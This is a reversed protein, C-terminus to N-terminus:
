PPTDHCGSHELIMARFRDLFHQLKETLETVLALHQGAAMTQHWHHFQTQGLRRMKDVDVGDAAQAANALLPIRDHDARARGLCLDQGGVQEELFAPDQRFRRGLDGIRLHPVAAGDAAVAGVSIRSVVIRRDHHGEICAVHQPALSAFPPDGCPFEVVRDERGRPRLVFQQGLDTDRGRGLADAHGILLYLALDTVVGDRRGGHGERHRIAM